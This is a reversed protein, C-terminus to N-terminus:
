RALEAAVRQREAGGSPQKEPGARLRLGESRVSVSVSGSLVIYYKDGAAGQRFVM